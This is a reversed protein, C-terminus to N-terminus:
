EPKILEWLGRSPAAGLDRDLTNRFRELERAAESVNGEALYLRMLSARASERDPDAEVAALAALLATVHDNQAELRMSLCELAHVRLQRWREAHFEIWDDPWGPLLPKTLTAILERAVAPTVSRSAGENLCALASGTALRLDVAIEPLLRVRAASVDVLDAAYLRLRWVATRLRARANEEDQYEWLLSALTLRFLGDPNLALLALLRQPGSPLMVERGDCVLGFRGLLRIEFAGSVGAPAGAARPM